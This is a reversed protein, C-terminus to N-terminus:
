SLWRMKFWTIDAETSFDIYYENGDFGTSARGGYNEALWDLVEMKVSCHSSYVNLVPHRVDPEYTVPNIKVTTGMSELLYLRVM